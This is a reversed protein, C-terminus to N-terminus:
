LTYAYVYLDFKMPSISSLIEISELSRTSSIAFLSSDPASGVEKALSLAMLYKFRFLLAILPVNGLSYERQILRSSNYMSPLRISKLALLLYKPEHDDGKIIQAITSLSSWPSALSRNNGAHLLSSAWNLLSLSTNSSLEDYATSSSSNASLALLSDNCSLQLDVHTVPRVRPRPILLSFLSFGLLVGVAFPLLRAILLSM